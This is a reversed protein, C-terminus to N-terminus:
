APWEWHCGQCHFGVLTASGPIPMNNRGNLADALELPEVSARSCRPCCDNQRLARARHLPDNRRRRHGDALAQFSLVAPGDQWSKVTRQVASEEGRFIRLRSM